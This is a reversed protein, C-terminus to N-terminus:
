APAAAVSASTIVRTVPVPSKFLDLVPCHEDVAAALEEYREQSEQGTVKVEVRVATFGSRM